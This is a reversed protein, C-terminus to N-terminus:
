NKGPPDGLVLAGKPVLKLRTKQGGASDQMLVRELLYMEEDVQEAEIIVRVVTDVTWIAGTEAVFGHVEGTVYYANLARVGLEFTGMAKARDDDRANNDRLFKPKYSAVPSRYSPRNPHLEDERIRAVPRNTGATGHDPRNGRITCESFQEDNSDHITVADIFRDGPVGTSSTQVVTASAPQDYDPEGVLITGEFNCRIVCGLRTAIRACFAYATENEQAKAANQKRRAHRTAFAPPAKGGGIPRGSIASAHARSDTIIANFGYPGLATLVVEEVSVDTQHKLSLDPNVHGQYPTVLETHCIVRIVKGHSKSITREVTQILFRGQAVGNVLVTVREGKALRNKYDAYQNAPPATEFTLSGLPDTFSDKLTFSNWIDITSGDGFHMVVHAKRSDTSSM